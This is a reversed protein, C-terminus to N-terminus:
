HQEQHQQHQVQLQFGQMGDPKDLGLVYPHLILAFPSTLGLLFWALVFTLALTLMLPSGLEDKWPMYKDEGVRGFGGCEDETDLNNSDNLHPDSRAQSNM